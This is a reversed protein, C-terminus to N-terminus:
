SIKPSSGKPNPFFRGGPPGGGEPRATKGKKQHHRRREEQQKQPPPPTAAQRAPGDDRRASSNPIRTGQRRYNGLPGLSRLVARPACAVALAPLQRLRQQARGPHHPRVRAPIAGLSRQLDKGNQNRRQPAQRSAASVLGGRDRQSEVPQRGEHNNPPKERRPLHFM